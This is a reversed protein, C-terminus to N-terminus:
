NWHEDALESILGNDLQLRRAQLRRIFERSHSIVIVGAGSTAISRLIAVMQDCTTADQGLTPEDFIYWPRRLHAVISFTLRKRLVFPLDFSHTSMLDKVGALAVTGCISDAPLDSLEKKVSSSFLQVDPNQMHMAVVQGPRNWPKMPSGAFYIQGGKLPLAGVLIRALTSKGAGNRGELSYVIGPKLVFSTGCLIPSGKAYAFSLREAELCGPEIPGVAQFNSADFRPAQIEEHSIVFDSVHYRHSLCWPTDALYGNETIVTTTNEALPCSFVLAIRAANNADLEGLSCDFALLAPELGLKCLTVLLTQEGGSLAFPSRQFHHTLGFAEALALLSSKYRSGSVHLDFEDQVTPMLSSLYGEISPGIYIAHERRKSYDAVCHKLLRTRGSFNNGGLVVPQGLYERLLRFIDMLYYFLLFYGGRDM